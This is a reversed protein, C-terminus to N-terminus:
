VPKLTESKVWGKSGNSIRIENWDGIEDLIKVKLGEHIVFLDISSDDPSSKVALTPAFVIATNHQRSENWTQWAIIGSLVFAMFLFLGGAFIIKRSTASRSLLFLAALVFLVSFLAVLVISWGDPSFWLKIGKWWRIYFLEPLVDIKDVIKSNAVSLNFLIDEGGPNYKLAREYNLIASPLDNTKFYANGLNYYLEPSAVQEKLINEYITIANEYFGAMYAKNAKDIEAQQQAMGINIFLLFIIGTTVSLKIKMKM